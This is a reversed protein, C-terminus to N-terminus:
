FVEERYTGFVDGTGTDRRFFFDDWKSFPVIVETSKRRRQAAEYPLKM